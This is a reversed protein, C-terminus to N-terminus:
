EFITNNIATLVLGDEGDDGYIRAQGQIRVPLENLILIIDWRSVNDVENCVYQLRNMYIIYSRLHLLWGTHM